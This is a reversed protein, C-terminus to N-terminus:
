HGTQKRSFAQGLPSGEDSTTRIASSRQSTLLISRKRGEVRQVELEKTLDVLRVAASFSPFEALNWGVHLHVVTQAPVLGSM